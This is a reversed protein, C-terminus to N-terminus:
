FLRLQVIKSGWNYAYGAIRVTAIAAICVDTNSPLMALGYALSGTPYSVLVSSIASNAALTFTALLAVLSGVVATIVAIRKTLYTGLFTVLSTFGSILIGALWPLGLLVPM